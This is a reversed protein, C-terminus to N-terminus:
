RAARALGGLLRSSGLSLLAEVAEQLNSYITIMELDVGLAVITQAVEPRVGVLLVQAGLLRVAAAAQLMAKAVQTDVIPVGTIDFIVYRATMREVASLINDSLITARYSDLAGILPTVLVGPLVPIVPASLERITAQSTRLDDLTRTLHAERQEGDELARQLSATRETVTTELTDRLRGLEEERAQSARLANYLADGFRDIILSVVIVVLMFTIYISLPSPQRGAMLGVVGPVFMELAAIVGVLAASLAVSLRLGSRGLLLGSLTLPVMFALLSNGGSRLGSFFLGMGLAIIWGVVAVNVALRFRGRHLLLLASGVALLMPPYILLGVFQAGGVWMRVLVITLGALAVGFMILLMIQLLRALRQELPNSSPIDDLWRRMRM